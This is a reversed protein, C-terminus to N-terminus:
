SERVSATERAVRVTTERAGRGSRALAALGGLGLASLVLSARLPRRDVWLDVRHRGEPVEVGIRHLNAIRLAVPAGDVTARYLPQYDRQVVLVAPTTAEVEAALMEPGTELLQAVGAHVVPAQGSSENGPLVVAVRPDFSPNVLREVAGNLTPARLITGALVLAPAASPIRYLDIFGDFSPVRRVPEVLDRAAPDLPRDLALYDIGWAALLRIRSADDALRVADRAATGLFSDLGESSMNLEFSRGALVGAFPYGELFTRRALWFGQEGPYLRPVPSAAGFLGESAGHAVTATPPIAEVIASPTRYPETLDTAMLPALLTIQGAAHVVLLLAGGERPRRWALACALALLALLGISILSLSGWRSVAATASGPPIDPSMISPLWAEIRAADHTLALRGILFVGALVGLATHLARRPRPERELIVREFGIGALLATGLAVPMWTRVPYRVLGRGWEFLWAAAPNFRGLALFLGAAVAALPALWSRNGGRLAAGALALSLLGPYLSFYYPPHGTFFRQGWFGGAGLLDPRGFAFPVLWEVIQRPDWSAVTRTGPSYGLHGRYSAGVIRWLEVIQPAAILTGCALPLALRAMVHARFGHRAMVAGAALLLAVVAMFPEGGLLLLAWLAAVIPGSLRRGEGEALRLCAAVLAPALAVGAIQNYLMMHSLVYGGLAYCTGAAWAAERRLGWARGLWYMACPALLLHIWFHANLAWLVPAALYLLNDPYLPVSDPNGIAPQGGARRTDILPLRGGRMAEAQAAKMELHTGFVDRLYLTRAGTALPLLRALLLLLVPLVYLLVFHDRKRSHRGAAGNSL